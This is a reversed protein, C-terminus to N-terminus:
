DTMGLYFFSIIRLFDFILFLANGATSNEPLLQLGVLAQRLLDVFGFDPSMAEASDGM